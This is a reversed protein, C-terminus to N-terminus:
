RTNKNYLLSDLYFFPPPKPIWLVQKGGGCKHVQVLDPMRSERNYKNKKTKQSSPQHKPATLTTINQM